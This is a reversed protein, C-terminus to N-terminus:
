LKSSNSGKSEEFGDDITNKRDGQMSREEDLKMKEEESNEGIEKEILLSETESIENLASGTGIQNSQGYQIREEWKSKALLLIQSVIDDSVWYMLAIVKIICEIASLDIEYSVM